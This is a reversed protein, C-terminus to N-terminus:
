MTAMTSSTALVYKHKLTRTNLYSVAGKGDCYHAKEPRKIHANSWADFQRDVWVVVHFRKKGSDRTGPKWQTELHSLIPLIQDDLSPLRFYRIPLKLYIESDHKELIESKNIRV